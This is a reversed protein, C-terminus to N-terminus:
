NKIRILEISNFAVVVCLDTDTTTFSLVGVDTRQTGLRNKETAKIGDPLKLMRLTPALNM